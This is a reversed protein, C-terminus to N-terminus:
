RITARRRAATVPYDGGTLPTDGGIYYKWPIGSLFGCVWEGMKERNPRVGLVFKGVEM